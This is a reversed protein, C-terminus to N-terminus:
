PILAESTFLAEIFEDANFPQLDAIGEGVGIFRIPLHLTQAISFIIGGKATGDLKTLVIGTLSLAEHFKRAQQLANQGLTADLVLLVEHPLTSDQKRLVKVIKKLEEMLTDQNHLRGATDALLVDVQKAKASQLADFIVSASDAGQHQAIVPMANREGWVQLQEIAAARFTDGAALMVKKEENKLQSALKGITTTKGTGNVGVMIIVFPKIDPPIHLPAEVSTLLSKMVEKVVIGLVANDQKKMREVVSNLIGTTTEMGVDASLLLIELDKLDEASVAGRHSFLTSLGSTFVARTRLLGAKLRNFLGTPNSTNDEKSPHRKLFDLM